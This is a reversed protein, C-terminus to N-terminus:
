FYQEIKMLDVAVCEIHGMNTYWAGMYYPGNSILWAMHYPEYPKASLNAEHRNELHNADIVSFLFLHEFPNINAM